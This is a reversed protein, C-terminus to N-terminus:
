VTKSGHLGQLFSQVSLNVWSSRPIILWSKQPSLKLSLRSHSSPCTIIWSTLPRFFSVCCGFRWCMKWYWSGFSESFIVTQLTNKRLVSPIFVSEWMVSKTFAFCDLGSSKCPTRFSPRPFCTGVLLFVMCGTFRMFFRVIGLNTVVSQSSCGVAAVQLM